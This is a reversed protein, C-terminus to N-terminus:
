RGAQVLAIDDVWVTGTGAIVLNLKVVQARQGNELFFSTEQTVWGTTGSVPAQLARSFFEGMGPIGCWMELYAQGDLSETRLHARYTLV